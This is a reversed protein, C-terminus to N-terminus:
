YGLYLHLFGLEYDAPYYENLNDNVALSGIYNTTESLSITARDQQERIAQDSVELAKLSSPYNEALFAIRGQEFHSLIEGGNEGTQLQEAEAYDGAQVAQYVQKNQASYHSFLNGVSMNACGASFLVCGLLAFQKVGYKM